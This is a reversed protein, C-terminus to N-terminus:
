AAQIRPDISLRVVDVGEKGAEVGRRTRRWSAPSPARPRTTTSAASARWYVAAHDTVVGLRLNPIGAAAQDVNTWDSPPDVILFARENECFASATGWLLARQVDTQGAGRPLTLLNFIDVERAVRTFIPEYDGLAPVGGNNGGAGPVQFNGTGSAGLSYAQANAARASAAMGNASGINFGGASTLVAATGANSTGFTPSMSIRYGTRRVNWTSGVGAALSAVRTDLHGATNRLSGLTATSADGEFFTAGAGAFAPSAVSAFAPHVADNFTWGTLNARTAAAFDILRAFDSNASFTAASADQM